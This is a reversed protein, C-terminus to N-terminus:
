ARQFISSLLAKIFPPKPLSAVIHLYDLGKARDNMFRIFREADTRNLLQQFLTPALLPQDHLVKLFLQDMQQLLFHSTTQELVADHAYYHDACQKAWRQIRMFGYGSSPRLAGASMGARPFDTKDLPLGMPLIGYETRLTTSSSYGREKLLQDFASQLHEAAQPKTSFVTLEILLRDHSLPLLYTFYFDNNMVRMDTMLELTSPDITSENSLEIEVGLFCQYLTAQAFQQPSPPRTDIVQKAFLCESNTEISWGELLRELKLVSTGLRAEISPCQGIKEWCDQYFDSSRIYQYPNNSSARKENPQDQQGFLWATWTHSVLHSLAHQQPAWFCWSRDDQYHTRPELIMVSHSTQREALERALSLGACGGGIIALDLRKTAVLATKYIDIYPASM